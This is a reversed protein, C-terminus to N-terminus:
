CIILIPGILIVVTNGKDTKQVTIGKNKLLSKLTGLISNSANFVRRLLLSIITCFASLPLVTTMKFVFVQTELIFFM